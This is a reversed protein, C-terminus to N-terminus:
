ILERFLTEKKKGRVKLLQLMKKGIVSGGQAVTTKILLKARRSKGAKSEKITILVENSDDEHSMNCILNDASDGFIEGLADRVWKAIKIPDCELIKATEGCINDLTFQNNPSKRSM